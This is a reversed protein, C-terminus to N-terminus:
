AYSIRMLSQLESTHEESRGAQPHKRDRGIAVLKRAIAHAHLRDLIRNRGRSAPPLRALEELAVPTEVDDDPKGLGNAGVERREAIEGNRKRGAAEHRKRLKRLYRERRPRVLDAALSAFAARHDRRM